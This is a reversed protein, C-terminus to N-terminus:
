IQGKSSGRWELAMFPKEAASRTSRDADLKLKTRPWFSVAEAEVDVSPSQEPHEPAVDPTHLRSKSPTHLPGSSPVFWHGSPYEGHASADEEDDLSVVVVVIVVVVVTVVSVVDEVTGKTPSSQVPHEAAVDPTHLRSRSPM